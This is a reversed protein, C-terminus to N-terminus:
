TLVLNDLYVAPIEAEFVATALAPVTAVSLKFKLDHDGPALNTLLTGVDFRDRVRGRPKIEQTARVVADILMEFTWEVTHLTMNATVAFTNPDDVDDEDIQLMGDALPRATVPESGAAIQDRLGLAITTVNDPRRKEDWSISGDNADPSVGASNRVKVTNADVFVDIPFTGNNAGTAAGTIVLQRGVSAATMGTLGGITTLPGDVEDISAASGTGFSLGTTDSIYSFLTGNITVTYTQTLASTVNALFPVKIPGRTRVRLNLVESTDFDEDQNTADEEGHKLFSFVGPPNSGLCFVWDGDPPTFDTPQVRGVANGSSLAANLGM